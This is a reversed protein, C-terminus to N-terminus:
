LDAASYQEGLWPAFLDLLEPFEREVVHKGVATALAKCKADM